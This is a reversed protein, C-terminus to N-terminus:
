IKIKRTKYYTRIMLKILYTMPTNNEDSLEKLMDYTEEDLRLTFKHM